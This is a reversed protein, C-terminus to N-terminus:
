ASKEVVELVSSDFRMSGEDGDIRVMVYPKAQTVTGTLGYFESWQAVVRVRDSLYIVSAAMHGSGRAERLACADREAHPHEVDRASRASV